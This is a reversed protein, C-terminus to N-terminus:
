QFIPENLSLWSLLELQEITESQDKINTCQEETASKLALIVENLSIMPCLSKYRFWTKQGFITLMKERISSSEKQIEELSFESCKLQIPSPEVVSGKEWSELLTVRVMLGLNPDQDDKEGYGWRPHIYIDRTEGIKMGRMGLQFGPILDSMRIVRDNEAQLIKGQITTIAYHIKVESASYELMKGSKEVISRYNIEKPIVEHTNILQRMFAEAEELNNKARLLHAWKFSEIRLSAFSIPTSPNIDMEEMGKIFPEIELASFLKGNNEIQLSKWIAQGLLFSLNKENKLEAKLLTILSTSYKRTSLHEGFIRSFIEGLFDSSSLVDKLNKQVIKYGALLQDTEVNKFSAFWPLRPTPSEYTTTIVEEKTLLAMEEYLNSFGFSPTGRQILPPSEPSELKPLHFEMSHDLLYERRSGKLANDTGFGLIIGNLVRDAHFISDLNESPDKFRDLLAEYTLMPGLAYQFIPLNRNITDMFSQKNIFDIHGWGYSPRNSKYIGYNSKLTSLGTKEWIRTGVKLLCGMRAWRHESLSLLIGEMRFGEDSLPKDGYLTYGVSTETLITRFFLELAGQEYDTLSDIVKEANTPEKKPNSCNSLAILLICLVSSYFKRKTLNQSNKM